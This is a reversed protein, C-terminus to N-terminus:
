ALSDLVAQALERVPEPRGSGHVVFTGEPRELVLAYRLNGAEEPPLSTYDYELWRAGGVDAQGTEAREALRQALWSPNPDLVQGVAAFDTPTTGDPSVVFGIYWERVGDAGTRLGADNAKWTGPVEPVALRQEVGPQAQQAAARYDVDRLVPRDDRPVAFFLAAVALLCVALSLVLNNVTKRARYQRSREALRAATEEPTEPRGLEAVIRPGKSRAM